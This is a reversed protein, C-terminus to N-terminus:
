GWSSGRMTAPVPEDVEEREWKRSGREDREERKREVRVKNEGRGRRREREAELRKVEDRRREEERREENRRAAEKRLLDYRKKEQDRRAQESSERRHQDHLWKLKEAAAAEAQQLASQEVPEGAVTLAVTPGGPQTRDLKFQSGSPREGPMRQKGM